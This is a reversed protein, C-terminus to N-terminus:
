ITKNFMCTINPYYAPYNIITVSMKKLFYDVMNFTVVMASTQYKAGIFEIIDIIQQNPEKALFTTNVLHINQCKKLILLEFDEFPKTKLM